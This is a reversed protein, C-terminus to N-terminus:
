SQQVKVQDRGAQKAAYLAMDAQSLLHSVDKANAEAQYLGLSITVAITLEQDQFSTQRVRDCLKKALETAIELETDPLTIAFEEGGIRGLIDSRRLNASITKAIYKLVKDGINHGYKDNIRKFYDLDLMIISLAQQKRHCLELYRETMEFFYHRNPVGTLEDITAQLYLKSNAEELERTREAVKKELVINVKRIEDVKEQIRSELITNLQDIERQQKVPTRSFFFAIPLSLMLVAFSVWLMKNFHQKMQQELQYDNPEIIVKLGDPNDISQITKAFLRNTQCVENNLICEVERPYENELNYGTQLIRSWQRQTDPHVLFFGNKDSLYIKFGQTSFRNELFRELFINAIIVGALNDHRYVRKSIRIVPKVPKEIQGHESNLDMQSYVVPKSSHIAHYFYDRHAKNQLKDDPVIVVEDDYHNRQVRIKENGNIDIFRLQMYKRSTSAILTFFEETQAKSGTSNHLYNQFISSSKVTQLALDVEQLYVGLDNDLKKYLQSALVIDNTQVSLEQLKLTLVSSIFILLTGFAVFAIILKSRFSFM